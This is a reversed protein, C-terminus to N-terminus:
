ETSIKTQTFLTKSLNIFQDLVLNEPRLQPNIKLTELTQFIKSKEISLPGHAYISSLSNLITKRRQQFTKHIIEFLLKEEGPDLARTTKTKLHVFCSDVKPPPRFVTPKIRFLIRPITHYQIFLSLPSYDRINPQAVMRQGFEWQVMIFIDSIQQKDQILKELIPSAICYPLNGIIKLHKGISSINFKLIDANLIQVHPDLFDKQLKQALIKDMEIAILQGVQPAIKRTLVGLGPGIELVTEERKLECADIIKHVINPDTLFNQGLSKKARIKEPIFLFNDSTKRPIM